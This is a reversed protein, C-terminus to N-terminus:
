KQSLSAAKIRLYVDEVTFHQLVSGAGPVSMARWYRGAYGHWNGAGDLQDVKRHELEIAVIRESDLTRIESPQSVGDHNEDAWLRLFRWVLDARSILGDGDGGYAAQDYVALADFGNDVAEGNPLRSADGFLEGGDDVRHNHNLDIWLFADDTDPNTWGVVDPVGDADIDFSVPSYLVNTTSVGHGDLDLILPSSPSCAALPGPVVALLLLSGIILGIKETM